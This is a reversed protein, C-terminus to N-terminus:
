GGLRALLARKKDLGSELEVAREREREVVEPPANAVFRENALKKALGAREKEGKAIEKTLRARVDALDVLGALPLAVEVGGDLVSIAAEAPLEADAALVEFSEFRGAHVALAHVRQLSAEVAADPARVALRVRTAPSLKCEAKLMRSTTVISILRAVDAKAEVGAESAALALGNPLPGKLADGERQPYDALMLYEGADAPRPIKHWIEETVFPTMPHLLRLVMDLVTALTGRTAEVETADDSRLAHKALEIYWDCLEHWVFQYAAHAALDMRWNGLHDHVDACVESARALIWRDAVGLGDMAGDEVVSTRWPAVDFSEGDADLNMLAFRSANWLKTVFNRYGQVRAQSFVIGGEQGAMTCLYFRLSDAGYERILGVPDVVNGKTKSMKRGDEGLVMSHLFVKRFPVDGGFHIGFMMMRAVWFFLIDWGTEMLSTPYFRSLEADEAPWGLTTLPWLGSSFWTDLVDEDQRIEAAGCHACRSPDERAVTIEGCEDCYWAPIRHGWWLQRSICWDHINEMWRYYDQTRHSPVIQTRGDRVAALAPEALPAVDVFWQHSPLPEVVVGTRQSHGVVMAHAKEGLLAGAEKLADLVATRADAVSLGVYQAPSPECMKGDLGIVQILELDHRKGTEFDNFDHAPTVKVAGTGFEMDVLVADAVIPVQRGTIPLTVTKGILHQYRPDEPHVAVGTDGLMTEPRTTAVVLTEDTGTVPYAIEWLRGEIERSEVELDSLATQSGHDWNILRYARYILGQEHLRCFAERVARSSVEDMTFRYRGWSLSAGLEEHQRDIIGGHEEKWKWVAELFGDRGVEHRSTGQAALQREVMVQTAIGAHDTGPLWVANFGRMRHWRVMLDEITATLAHGMHLRGTVNPPPLVVSFHPRSDDESPDFCGADRWRAYWRSEVPTPEYTKSLEETM